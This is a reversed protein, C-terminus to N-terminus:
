RDPLFADEPDTGSGGAVEDVTLEVHDARDGLSRERGATRFIERSKAEIAEALRHFPPSSITESRKQREMARLDDVADLLDDSADGLRQRLQSQERRVESM